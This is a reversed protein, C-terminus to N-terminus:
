YTLSKSPGGTGLSQSQSSFSQSIWDALKALEKETLNKFGIYQDFGAEDKFDQLWRSTDPDVGMGILVPRHSELKEGRVSEALAQKVTDRGVSSSNEEGDTLVFTIGNVLYNADTLEEGYDVTAQISTYAADNLPTGGSCYAILNDYDGENIDPLPRFGLVEKLGNPHGTSFLVVRLMMNDALPNRSCSRVVTKIAAEIDAEHGGLSGSTDIVMTGLSFKDAGAEELIDLKKASFQFRSGGINRQEMTDDTIIPM